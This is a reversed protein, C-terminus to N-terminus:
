SVFGLLWGSASCQVFPSLWVQHLDSGEAGEDEQPCTDFNGVKSDALPLNTSLRDMAYHAKGQRLSM